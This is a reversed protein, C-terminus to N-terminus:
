KAGKERGTITLINLDVCENKNNFYSNTDTHTIYRQSENSRNKEQKCLVHPYEQLFIMTGVLLYPPKVLWLKFINKEYPTSM